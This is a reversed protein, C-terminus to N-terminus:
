AGGAALYAAPDYQLRLSRIRGGSLTFFEAFRVTGKPLEADYLVAAEGPAELRQIVDVAGVNAVFGKVGQLFRAAGTVHGALPGEFVLDDALLPALEAGEGYADIGGTIIRYYSDLTQDTM